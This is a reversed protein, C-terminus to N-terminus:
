SGARVRFETSPVRFQEGVGGRAAGRVPVPDADQPGRSGAGAQGDIEDVGGIEFMMTGPKVIACWYEPEGKGKGM